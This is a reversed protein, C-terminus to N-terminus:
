RAGIRRRGFLLAGGLLVGGFGFALMQQLHASGTRPLQVVVADVAATPVPPSSAVLAQGVPVAIQASLDCVTDPIVPNCSLSPSDSGVVSIVGGVTFSGHVMAQNLVTSGPVVTSDVNVVLTILSSVAGPALAGSLTCTILQPRTSQTLACEGNGGDVAASVLEVMAPLRDTIVVPNLTLGGTNTVQLTYTIQAGPSVTATSSTKVIQVAAYGNTVVVSVTQGLHGSLTLQDPSITSSNSSGPNIEAITYKVGAPDLTSPLNITKTEGANIDFTLEEVYSAGVLRSVRITYTEGTAPQGNLAKTFTVTRECVTGTASAQAVQIGNHMLVLPATPSSIALTQGAPVTASGGGNWTVSLDTTETNTINFWYSTVAGDTDVSNCVAVVSFLADCDSQVVIDAQPVGNIALTITNSGDALHDVLVTQSQGPHVVYNTGNITFTVDVDDGPNGILVSVTDDFSACAQVYSYTPALDCQSTTTFSLDTADAFVSILTPGDNLGSVVVPTSTNPAVSYQTGNVTFVVPLQGGTVILTITVQGDNNACTPAIAITGAGPHDCAVTIDFSLDLTDALVAIHNVGDPLGNLTVDLTSAPGVPYQTGNVTFVVAKGGTNSLTVVVQGDGDVCTAAAATVAPLSSDCSVTFNQSYDTTGVLIKVFHPGDSLGTFTVPTSGGAPVSYNTFTTTQDPNYVSFVVAPAFQGASNTLTLVVNGDGQGPSTNVCSVVTGVAPQGPCNGPKTITTSSGSPSVVGNGWTGHPTSTITISTANAPWVFTGSFRYNNANNFAGQGIQTTTNGITRSVRIDPNTGSPGTAWSSATWSVTGDCVVSAAINSHHASATGGFAPVLLVAGLLVLVATFIRRLQRM